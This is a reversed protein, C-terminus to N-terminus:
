YELEGDHEGECSCRIMMGDKWIYCKKNVPASGNVVVSVSVDSGAPINAIVEAFSQTITEAPM